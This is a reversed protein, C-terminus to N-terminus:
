AAQISPDDPPLYGGDPLKQKQNSPTIARRHPQTRSAPEGDAGGSRANEVIKTLTHVVWRENGENAEMRQITPQSVASMEVLQKQDIGLLARAACMQASTIM